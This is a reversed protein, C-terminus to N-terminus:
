IKYASRPSMIPIARAERMDDTNAKFALGLIAVCKGKLNGLLEKCFEVAKLPQAKNVSEVAEL